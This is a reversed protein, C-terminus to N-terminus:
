FRFFFQKSTKFSEFDPFDDTKSFNFPVSSTTATIQESRHPMVVSESSTIQSTSYTSTIQTPGNYYANGFSKQQLPRNFAYSPGKNFQSRSTNPFIPETRPM